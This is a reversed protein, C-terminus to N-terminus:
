FIVVCALVFVGNMIVWRKNKFKDYWHSSDKVESDKEKRDHDKIRDLKNDNRVFFEMGDWINWIFEKMTKMSENREKPKIFDEILSTKKKVQGATEKNKFKKNRKSKSSM